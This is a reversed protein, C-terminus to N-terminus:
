FNAIKEQEKMSPTKIPITKLTQKNLTIGKAAQSGYKLINISNVYYYMVETSIDNNNKWKLNCIAENTYMDTNLIGLKGISLKFSMVLTGKKIVDKNSAGYETITKSTNNLYKQSMDAISLWPFQGGWNKSNSTSPTFGM